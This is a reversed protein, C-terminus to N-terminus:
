HIPFHQKAAAFSVTQLLETVTWNTKYQTIPDPPQAGRESVRSRYNRVGMPQCWKLKECDSWLFCTEFHWGMWWQQDAPATHQGYRTGKQTSTAYHICINSIKYKISYNIVIQNSGFGIWSNSIKSYYKCDATSKNVESSLYRPPLWVAM